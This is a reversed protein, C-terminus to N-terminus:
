QSATSFNSPVSAGEARAHNARDQSLQLSDGAVQEPKPRVSEIDARERRDKIAEALAFFNQFNELLIAARAEGGVGEADAAQLVLGVVAELLIHLAEAVVEVCLMSSYSVSSVSFRMQTPRVLPTPIREAASAMASPTVPGTSRALPTFHSRRLAM